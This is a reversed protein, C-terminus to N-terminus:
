CLSLPSVSNINCVSHPCEGLGATLVPVQGPLDGSPNSVIHVPLEREGLHPTLPPSATLFDRIVFIKNHLNQGSGGDGYWLGGHVLIPLKGVVGSVHSRNGRTPFCEATLM